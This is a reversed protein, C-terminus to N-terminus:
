DHKIKKIYEELYNIFTQDEMHFISNSHTQHYASFANMMLQTLRWDPVKHWIQALENCFQDIRNPDRM